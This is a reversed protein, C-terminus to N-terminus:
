TLCDDINGRANELKMIERKEKHADKKTKKETKEMRKRKEGETQKEDM